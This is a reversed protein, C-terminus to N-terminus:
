DTRGKSGSLEGFHVVQAVADAVTHVRRLRVLGDAVGRIYASPDGAVGPQATVAALAHRLIDGLASWLFAATSFGEGRQERVWAYTLVTSEFALRRADHRNEQARLHMCKATPEVALRWTRGVRFSFDRDEGYSYGVLRDDFSHERLVAMRYSMAFGQLWQVPRVGYSRSAGNAPQPNVVRGSKLITNPYKGSLLFVRNFLPHDEVRQNQVRGGVGGLLPDEAFRNEIADFYGPLVEADDDLFHVVEVGLNGCVKVAENRQRALGPRTARVHHLELEPHAATLERCRIETTDNDSADIVVIPGRPREEAVNTGVRTIREARNRTCIAVASTLKAEEVTWKSPALM